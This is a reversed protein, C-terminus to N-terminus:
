ERLEDSLYKQQIFSFFRLAREFQPNLRMSLLLLLLLILLLLLRSLLLTDQICGCKIIYKARSGAGM